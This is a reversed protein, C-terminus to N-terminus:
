YLPYVVDRVPEVPYDLHKEKIKNWEFSDLVTDGNCDPYPCMQLDRILRYEGAKYCRECHLCWVWEGEPVGTIETIEAKSM